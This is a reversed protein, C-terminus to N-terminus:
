VPRISDMIGRNWNRRYQFLLCQRGDSLARGSRVRQSGIAAPNSRLFRNIAGIEPTGGKHFESYFPLDNMASGVTTGICVGINKGEVEHNELGADMLAEYAATIALKGTFSIHSTNRLEQRIAAEFVEFVPYFIGHTSTFRSPPLPNRKGQFLAEICDSLTVRRRLYMGHRNNCYLIKKM